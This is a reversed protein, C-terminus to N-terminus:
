QTISILAENKSGPFIEARRAAMPLLPINLLAAHTLTIISRYPLKVKIGDNM